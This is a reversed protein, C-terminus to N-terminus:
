KVEISGYKEEITIQEPLLARYLQLLKDYDEAAVCNQWPGVIKEVGNVDWCYDFREVNEPDFSM